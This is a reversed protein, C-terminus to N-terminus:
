GSPQQNSDLRLLWRRFGVVEIVQLVLWNANDFKWLYLQVRDPRHTGRQRAIGDVFAQLCLKLDCAACHCSLRPGRLRHPAEM